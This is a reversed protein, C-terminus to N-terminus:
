TCFKVKVKINRLLPIKAVFLPLFSTLLKLPLKPLKHLFFFGLLLNHFLLPFQHIQSSNLFLYIESM